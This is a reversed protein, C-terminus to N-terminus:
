ILARLAKSLKRREFYRERYFVSANVPNPESSFLLPAPQKVDMNESLTMNCRHLVGNKKDYGLQSSYPELRGLFLTVYRTLDDSGWLLGEPLDAGENAATKPLRRFLM